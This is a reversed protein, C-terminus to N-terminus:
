SPICTMCFVWCKASLYTSYRCVFYHKPKTYKSYPKDIDVTGVWNDVTGAQNYRWCIIIELKRNLSAPLM